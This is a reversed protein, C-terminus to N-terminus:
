LPPRTPGHAELLAALQALQETLAELHQLDACVREYLAIREAEPLEEPRWELGTVEANWRAAPRALGGRLAEAMASLRAHLRLLM